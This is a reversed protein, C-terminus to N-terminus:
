RQVGIGPQPGQVVVPKGGASLRVTSTGKANSFVVLPPIVVNNDLDVVRGRWDFRFTKPFPGKIRLNSATSLAVKTPTDLKGDSNGDIAFFYTTNDVVTVYAMEDVASTQRRQSDLRAQEVFAVFEQAANVRAISVHSSRFRVIAYGTIVTVMLVVVLLEFVSFGGSRKAVVIVSSKMADSGLGDFRLQRSGRM